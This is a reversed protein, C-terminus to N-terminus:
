RWQGGPLFKSVKWCNRQIFHDATAAPSLGEDKHYHPLYKAVTGGSSGVM